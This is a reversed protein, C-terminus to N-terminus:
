RLSYGDLLKIADKLDQLIRGWVELPTTTSIKEKWSENNTIIPINGFLSALQYYYYARLFLAEGHAHDAEEKKVDRPLFNLLNIMTNINYISQYYTDWGSSLSNNLSENVILLDIAMFNDYEGGGGLMEDSALSSIFFFDGTPNATSYYLGEYAGSTQVQLLVKPNSYRNYFRISKISKREIKANSGDWLNVNVVSPDSYDLKTIDGSIFDKVSGDIMTIRLTDQQQQIQASMNIAFLLLIATFIKKM